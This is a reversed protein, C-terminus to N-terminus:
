DRHSQLLSYYKLGIIDNPMPKTNWSDHIAIAAGVATAQAMHAAFVELEPFARALLNM